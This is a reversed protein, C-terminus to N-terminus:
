WRYSADKVSPGISLSDELGLEGALISYWAKIGTVNWKISYNGESVENLGAIMGPIAAYIATKVKIKDESGAIVADPDLGPETLIFLVDLDSLGFKGLVATVYEKNTV